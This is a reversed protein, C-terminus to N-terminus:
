SLEFKSELTRGVIWINKNFFFQSKNFSDLSLFKEMWEKKGQTSNMTAISAARLRSSFYFVINQIHGPDENYAASLAPGPTPTPTTM